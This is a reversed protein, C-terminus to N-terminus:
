PILDIFLNKVSLKVLGNEPNSPRVAIVTFANANVRCTSRPDGNVDRARHVPPKIKPNKPVRNAVFHDMLPLIFVSQPIVVVM